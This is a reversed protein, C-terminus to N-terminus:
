QGAMAAGGAIGLVLCVTMGLIFRTMTTRRTTPSVECLAYGVDPAVTLVYPSKNSEL